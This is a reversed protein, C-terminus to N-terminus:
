SRSHGVRGDQHLAHVGNCALLDESEREAVVGIAANAFAIQCNAAKEITRLHRNCLCKWVIGM